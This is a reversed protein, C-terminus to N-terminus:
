AHAFGQEHASHAGRLVVRHQFGEILAEYCHSLRLLDGEDRDGALQQGNEVRDYTFARAPLARDPRICQPM